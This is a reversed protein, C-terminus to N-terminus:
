QSKTTVKLKLKLDLFEVGNENETQMTFRNKGSADIINLYNSHHNVDEDSHIWLAFVDCFRKWLNSHYHPWHIMPFCHVVWEFRQNPFM